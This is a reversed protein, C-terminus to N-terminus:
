ESKLPRQMLNMIAEAPAIKGQLILQVQQAIPLEVKLKEALSCVADCTPVGEATGILHKIAENTTQGQAIAMGLQYNRSLSSTCTTLLDGMGSLGSLTESKAGLAIALRSIETLGRTVIAARANAGLRMGDACGAAIAIINKLAGGLETGIVDSSAYVRFNETSLVSQLQQALTSDSCAIVSAAPKGAVIESALNPGSLAAVPYDPLCEFLVVCMTKGSELELGKVASVLVINKDARPGLVTSLQQAVLRLSQSTVAFIIITADIVAQQLDDCVNIAAITQAAEIETMQSVPKSAAAQVSENDATLSSSLREKNRRLQELKNKDRDWLSVYKGSCGYISALTGGWNGAGLIAIRHEDTM